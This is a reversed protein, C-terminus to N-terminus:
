SAVVTTRAYTNAGVCTIVYEQGTILEATQSTVNFTIRSSRGSTVVAGSNSLTSAQLSSSQQVSGSPGVTFVLSGTLSSPLTTSLNITGSVPTVVIEQVEADASGSNKTDLVVSGGSVTGTLELNSRTQAKFTNWWSQTSIDVTGGLNLGLTLTTQSPVVTAMATASFVFQPSSSSGANEIFTRLDVVAASSGSTDVQVKDQSQATLTSSTVTATFTQGQYVVRCSDVKLRFADYAAANVQSAALAQATGDQAMLDMTGSGSVQTWGSATDTGAQHAMVSSYSVTADSVGEAAIAPDTGMITLM